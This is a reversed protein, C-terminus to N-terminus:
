RIITVTGKKVPRNKNFRILYVYTASPQPKGNYTGDWDVTTGATEYVLQGYRNYVSVTAGSSLDLYAIRWHDNKGDNNPTFASPVFIDKVVRVLTADENKCGYASEAFLTYVMEKTPSAVPDILNIDSLYDPPNWYYVPKEGTVIGSLHITDMLFAIRDPGASVYPKPHVNIAINKSAIRCSTIGAFRSDTVTLRYWYTGADGTPPRDYSNSNAGPIDQWTKGSDISSQWQFSPDLYASSADGTLTYLNSNGECIDVTDSHGQITSTIIPGCPRFTIDDLALDNGIGGPANNRMRLVIVPNDPPTTFYFGYQKWEPNGTQAINGTSYEQLITGDPSEITFTINPMIGSQHTLVNMIWAAFEYNTNPCLDSVKTVFFDGPEVSANVLMFAGHGTHDSNITFWTGGFCDTTSNTIIYSGDVPCSINSYTYGNSATYSTNGSGSGFNINVVPDGLSGACLQAHLCFSFGLTFLVLWSRVLFSNCAVTSDPM